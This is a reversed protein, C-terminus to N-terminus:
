KVVGSNLHALIDSFTCAFYDAPIDQMKNLNLMDMMLVTKMGLSNGFQIDTLFDGAMVSRSFDIDYFIKKALLGMGINPKRMSSNQDAKQPAYLVLDIHINNESFKRTMFDHVANLEKKSIIGKDIGQQNTVVVIRKFLQAIKPLFTLIDKRFIFEEPDSVIHGDTRENIVGDRDLFLTHYPTLFDRKNPSM